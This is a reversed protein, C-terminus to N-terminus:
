VSCFLNVYIKYLRSVVRMLATSRWTMVIHATFVCYGLAREQILACTQLCQTKFIHCASLGMSLSLFSLPLPDIAMNVVWVWYRQSCFDESVVCSDQLFGWDIIGFLSSCALHGCFVGYHDYSPNEICRLLPSKTTLSILWIGLWLCTRDCITAAVSEM